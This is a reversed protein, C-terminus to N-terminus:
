KLSRVLNVVESPLSSLYSEMEKSEEKMKTFYNVFGEKSLEDNLDLPIRCHKEMIDRVIEREASTTFSYGSETLLNMLFSSLDNGGFNLRLIGNQM